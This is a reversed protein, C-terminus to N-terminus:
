STKLQESIVTEKTFLKTQRKKVYLYILSILVGSIAFSFAIVILLLELYKM